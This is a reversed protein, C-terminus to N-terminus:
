LASPTVGTDTGDEGVVPWPTGCAGAACQRAKARVSGEALLVREEERPEEKAWLGAGLRMCPTPGGHPECLDRPMGVLAWSGGLKM